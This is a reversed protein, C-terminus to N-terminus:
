IYQKTTMWCFHFRIVNLINGFIYRDRGVNTLREETEQNFVDSYMWQNTSAKASPGIANGGAAGMWKHREFLALEQTISELGSQSTVFLASKLYLPCCFVSLSLNWSMLYICKFPLSDPITPWYNLKNTCGITISIHKCIFTIQKM